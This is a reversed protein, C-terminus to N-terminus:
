DSTAAICLGVVGVDEFSVRLDAMAPRRALRRAADGHGLLALVELVIAGGETAPSCTGVGGETGGETAAGRVSGGDFREFTLKASGVSAAATSDPSGFHAKSSDSSGSRALSPGSRSKVKSMGIGSVGEFVATIAAAVRTAWASM